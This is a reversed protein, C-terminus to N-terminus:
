KAEGWSPGVEVDVRFPVATNPICTRMIDAVAEAEAVDRFSGDLEDHVQLQIFADPMERDIVVLATKVQDASSGQIIRNLAKYTWDYEGRADMPFRCRRGGVTTIYGYTKAKAEALNALEKIFPARRNFTDIIEQAEANATEFVRYKWAHGHVLRQQNAEDRTDYLEKINTGNFSRIVAWKPEQGLDRCLKAGGEGYCLGLYLNKAYKRPLGTLDAMFQHNDIKPNDHYAQAAQRAIDRSKIPSSAAYHTTWRPEQQSYDLSGWICGEDPEYISRWMAAFEDRSPQQQLNPDQASLRGSRAGVIGSGDESDRPLQNFTCHIRGNVMYRYISAAFTDRLKGVKRGRLIADTVPHKAGALLFKDVQARGTATTGTAIGLQWLVPLVDDTNDLRAVWIGTQDKIFKQAKLEEGNAWTVVKELRDQNIRVGRQRLKILVPLVQTELEWIRHLDQEAIEREQLRLIDNCLTADREAYAGVYRAPLRWMDSKPDLGLSRAADTMLREDKGEFGRRKAINDLSYSQHHEWILAEAIQVDRFKATPFRIGAHTLYDLDYSLNAGTIDGDFSNAQERLYAMVQEPNLNDGGEHKMPLYASPGGDIAFSVGVIYGGTRVSPGTIKLNPDRTEIDLAVRKAGRWSPLSGLDPPRWDSTPAFMQLQAPNNITRAM